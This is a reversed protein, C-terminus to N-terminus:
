TLQFDVQGRQLSLGKVFNLFEYFGCGSKTHQVDSTEIRQKNSEM